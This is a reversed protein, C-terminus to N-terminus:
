TIEDGGNSRETPTCPAPEPPHNGSHDRHRALLNRSTGQAVSLPNDGPVEDERLRLVKGYDSDSGARRERQLATTM